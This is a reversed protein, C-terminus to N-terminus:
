VTTWVKKPQGRKGKSTVRWSRAQGLEALETLRPGIASPAFGLSASLEAVTATGLSALRRWVLERMGAAWPRRRDNIKEM